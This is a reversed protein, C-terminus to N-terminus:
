WWRLVQHGVLQIVLRRRRGTRPVSLHLCAPRLPFTLIQRCLMGRQNIEIDGCTTNWDVPAAASRGVAAMPPGQDFGRVTILCRQNNPAADRRGSRRPIAEAPVRQWGAFRGRRGHGPRLDCRDQDTAVPGSCVPGTEARGDLGANSHRHIRRPDRSASEPYYHSTPM